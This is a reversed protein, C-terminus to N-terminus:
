APLNRILWFGLVLALFIWATRPGPTLRAPWPKGRVWVTLGLASGLLLIFLLLMGFPNWHFAEAFRGHLAAHTARTMGCGPCQWGTFRHFLCEPLWAAYPGSHRLATALGAAVLLGLAVIWARDQRMPIVPHLPVDRLGCGM